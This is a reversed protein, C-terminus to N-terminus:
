YVIIPIKLEEAALKLICKQAEEGYIKILSEEDEYYAKYHDYDDFKHYARLLLARMFLIMCLDFSPQECM